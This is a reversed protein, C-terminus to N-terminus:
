IKRGVDDDDHEARVIGNGTGPGTLVVEDRVVLIEDVAVRAEGTVRRDVHNNGRRYALAWKAVRAVEERVLHDRHNFLNGHVLPDGGNVGEGRETAFIEIRTQVAVQVLHM